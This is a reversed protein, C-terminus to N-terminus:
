GVQIARRKQNTGQFDWNRAIADAALEDSALKTYREWTDSRWGGEAKLKLVDRTQSYFWTAWTHRCVHPTYLNSDLGIKKVARSFRSRIQGGENEREVFPEGDWRRFLPGDTGLNPLLSLAARVKPILTVRREQGNKTDRLIVFGHELFVDNLADMALMEGMRAGTGLLFILMPKAWAGAKNKGVTFVEILADAQAPTFFYTRANDQVKRRKPKTNHNIIARIPTDWQRRITASTCGPYARQGDAMIKEDNITDAPLKEYFDLIREMFRGQGTGEMYNAVWESFPPAATKNNINQGKIATQRQELIGQAEAKDSTRTSQEVPIKVLRGDRWVHVTGRIYWVGTAKRGKRENRTLYLM